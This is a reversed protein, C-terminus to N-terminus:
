SSATGAGKVFIGFAACLDEMVKVGEKVHDSWTWSSSQYPLVWNSSDEIFYGLGRQQGWAIIPGHIMTGMSWHSLLVGLSQVVQGDYTEGQRGKM